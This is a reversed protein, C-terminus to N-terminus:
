ASPSAATSASRPMVSPIGASCNVATMPGGPEPLDVSM